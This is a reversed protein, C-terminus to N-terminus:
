DDQDTIPDFYLEKILASRPNAPNLIVTIKTMTEIRSTRTSHHIYNTATFEKKLYSFNYVVRGLDQIHMYREIVGPVEVGRAFHARLVSYRLLFAVVGMVTLVLAPIWLNDANPGGIDTFWLFLSFSWFVIPIVIPLWAIYDAEVAKQISPRLKM